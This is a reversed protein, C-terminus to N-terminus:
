FKLCKIIEEFIIKQPLTANKFDIAINNKINEKLVFIAKNLSEKTLYKEKIVIVKGDNEIEKANHYQHNDAAYPYPILIASKNLTKIEFITGAGSRCIVLSSVAYAAGINHMYEFVKYKPNNKVKEKVSIFNKQGTIHLIQFNNKLTLELLTECAIENLKVSGLSGGFVLIIIEQSKLDLQNLAEEKSASLIDERIPYGCVFLNKNKFFKQSSSFSLFTKNAIKNLLMNAKGPISNQEHIFIKKGLFKAAFLAPVAIYGGVGIVATPKIEVIQKLSKLFSFATQILFKIFLFSIKRPLGSMRFTIYKFSTNKLIEISVPNANIFFVPNYNNNKFEQAIAIAPYIHGGTGSAAIVINKLLRHKVNM